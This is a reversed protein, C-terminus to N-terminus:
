CRHIEQHNLPGRVLSHDKLSRALRGIQTLCHLVEALLVLFLPNKQQVQREIQYHLRNVAALQFFVFPSLPLKM